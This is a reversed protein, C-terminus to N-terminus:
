YMKGILTWKMTTVDLILRVMCSTTEIEGVCDFGRVNEDDVIVVKTENVHITKVNERDDTYKIWMPTIEGQISTVMCVQCPRHVLENM